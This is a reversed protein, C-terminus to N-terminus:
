TLTPFFVYTRINQKSKSTSKIYNNVMQRHFRERIAFFFCFFVHNLMVFPWAGKFHSLPTDCATTKYSEHLKYLCVTVRLVHPQWHKSHSGQWVKSSEITSEDGAVLHLSPVRGQIFGRPARGISGERYHPSAEICAHPVYSIWWLWM